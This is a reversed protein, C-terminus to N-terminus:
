QPLTCLNPFEKRLVACMEEIVPDTNEPRICVIEAHAEPFPLPYFFLQDSEFGDFVRTMLSFGQGNLLRILTTPIDPCQIVKSHKIKKAWEETTPLFQGRQHFLLPYNKLDDLTFDPNTAIPHSKACVIMFHHTQLVDSRTNPWLAWDNTTHICFDLKHDLLQHRIDEFNLLKLDFFIEPYLAILRSVLPIIIHQKSFHAYIGVSVQSRSERNMRKVKRVSAEIQRNIEIFDDRLVQGAPTLRVSRTSRIFLPVGLEEELASIQKTVAQQTVFLNNAATTFNLTDAVELFFRIRNYLM